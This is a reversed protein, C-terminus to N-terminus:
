KVCQTDTSIDAKSPDARIVWLWRVRCSRQVDRGKGLYRAPDPWMLVGGCSLFLLRAEHVYVPLSM